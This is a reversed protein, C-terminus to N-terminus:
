LRGRSEWTILNIFVCLSVCSQLLSLADCTDYLHGPGDYMVLLSSYHEALRTVDYEVGVRGEGKPM